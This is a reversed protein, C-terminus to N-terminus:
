FPRQADCEGCDRDFLNGPILPRHCDACPDTNDTVTFGFPHVPLKKADARGLTESVPTLKFIAGAGLFFHWAPRQREEHVWACTGDENRQYMGHQYPAEPIDVRLLGNALAKVEGTYRQHGMVEIIAWGDTFGDM